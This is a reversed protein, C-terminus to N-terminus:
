LLVETYLCGNELKEALYKEAAEKARCMMIFEKALGDPYRVWYTTRLWGGEGNAHPIMRRRSEITLRTYPPTRWYINYEGNGLDEKKVKTWIM